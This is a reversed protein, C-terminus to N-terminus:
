PKEGDYNQDIIEIVGVISTAASAIVYLTQSVWPAAQCRDLIVPNNNATINLGLGVTVAPSISVSIKNSSANSIILLRRAPNAKVLQLVAVGATVASEQVLDSMRAERYQGAM